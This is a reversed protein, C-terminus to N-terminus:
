NQMKKNIQLLLCSQPLGTSGYTRRKRSALDELYTCFYMRFTDCFLWKQLTHDPKLVSIRLFVFSGATPLYAGADMLISKAFPICVGTKKAKRM